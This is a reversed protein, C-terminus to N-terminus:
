RLSSLPPEDLAGTHESSALGRSPEACVGPQVEMSIQSICGSIFLSKRDLGTEWSDMLNGEVTPVKGKGWGLSSKRLKAGKGDRLIKGPGQSGTCHSTGPWLEGNEGRWRQQEWM